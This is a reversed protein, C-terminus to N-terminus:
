QPIFYCSKNQPVKPHISKASAKPFAEPIYFMLLVIIRFLVNQIFSIFRLLISLSIQKDM